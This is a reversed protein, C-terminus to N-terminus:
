WMWVSYIDIQFIFFLLVNWRIKKWLVCLQPFPLIASKGASIVSHHRWFKVDLFSMLTHRWKHVGQRPLAFWCYFSTALGFVKGHCHRDVTSQLQWHLLTTLRTQFYTTDVNDIPPLCFRVKTPPQLNGNQSFNNAPDVSFCPRVIGRRDEWM